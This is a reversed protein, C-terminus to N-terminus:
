DIMEKLDDSTGLKTITIKKKTHDELFGKITKWIINFTWSVNLVFIRASTCRYQNQLTKM